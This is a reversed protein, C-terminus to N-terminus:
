PHPAFAGIKLKEHRYSYITGSDADAAAMLEARSPPGPRKRRVFDPLPIGLIELALRVGITVRRDAAALHVAVRDNDIRALDVTHNTM